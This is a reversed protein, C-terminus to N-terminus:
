AFAPQTQEVDRRRRRLATGAVGFGLILMAWTGPEPAAGVASVIMTGGNQGAYTGFSSFSGLDFLDDYGFNGGADEINIYDGIDANLLNAWYLAQCNPGLTASCYTPSIYGPGLLFEESVIEFSADNLTFQYRIAAESPAAFGIISGLLVLAAFVRKFM